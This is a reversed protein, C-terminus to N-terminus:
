RLGNNRVQSPRAQGQHPRFTHILRPVGTRGRARVAAVVRPWTEDLLRGIAPDDTDCSVVVSAPLSRQLALSAVCAALHRTTHTPILLHIRASGSHDSTPAADGDHM